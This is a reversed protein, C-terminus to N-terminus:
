GCSGQDRVPTDWAGNKYARWDFIPNEKEIQSVKQKNIVEDAKCEDRLHMTHESNYRKISASRRVSTFTSQHAAGGSHMEIVASYAPLLMDHFDRAHYSTHVELLEGHHNEAQTIVYSHVADPNSSKTGYFCGKSDGDDYWGLLTQGCQSEYGQTKGDSDEGVGDQGCSPDQPDECRYNAFAFLRLHEGSSAHLRAEWGEDYVTTWSSHGGEFQPSAAVLHQSLDDRLWRELTLNMNLKRDYSKMERNKGMSQYKM